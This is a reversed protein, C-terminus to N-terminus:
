NTKKETIYGESDSSQRERAHDYWPTDTSEWLWILLRDFWTMPRKSFLKEPM